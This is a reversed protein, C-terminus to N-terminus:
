CSCLPNEIWVIFVENHEVSIIRSCLHAKVKLERDELNKVRISVDDQESSLVLTQDSSPLLLEVSEQNDQPDTDGVDEVDLQEQKEATLSTTESATEVDQDQTVDSLNDTLISLTQELSNLSSIGTTAVYGASALIVIVFGVIVLQRLKRQEDM